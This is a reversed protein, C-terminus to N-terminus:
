GEPEIGVRGEKTKIILTEVKWGFVRQCETVLLPLQDSPHYALEKKSAVIRM